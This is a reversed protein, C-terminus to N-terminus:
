TCYRAARPAGLPGSGWAGGWLRLVGAARLWVGTTRPLRVWGGGAGRERAKFSQSLTRAVTPIQKSGVSATTEVCLDKYRVEISPPALGVSCSPVLLLLLPPLTLALTVALMAALKCQRSAAPSSASLLPAPLTAAAAAAAATVLVYCCSAAAVTCCCRVPGPARSHAEPHGGPRCGPRAAHQASFHCRPLCTLLPLQTLERSSGRSIGRSSTNMAACPLHSGPHCWRLSHLLVRELKQLGPLQQLSWCLSGRLRPPLASGRAAGQQECRELLAKSQSRKMKKADTQVEEGGATKFSVGRLDKMRDQAPRSCRCTCTVVHGLSRGAQTGGCVHWRPVGVSHSAIHQHLAHLSPHHLPLLQVVPTTLADSRRNPSTLGRSGPPQPQTAARAAPRQEVLWIGGWVESLLLSVKDARGVPRPSGSPGPAQCPPSQEAAPPLSGPQPARGGDMTNSNGPPVVQDHTRRSFSSAVTHFQLCLDALVPQPTLFHPVLQLHPFQAHHLRKLRRRCVFMYTNRLGVGGPVPHRGDPEWSWIHNTSTIPAAKWAAALARRWQWPMGAAALRACAAGGCGLPAECHAMYQLWSRAPSLVGGRICERWGHAPGPPTADGASSGTCGGGAPLRLVHAPPGPRRYSLVQRQALAQLWAGATGAAM